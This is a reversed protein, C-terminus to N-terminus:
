APFGRAQSTTSQCQMNHPSTTLLLAQLPVPVVESFILASLSNSLQAKTSGGRENELEVCAPHGVVAELKLISYICCQLKAEKLCRHAITEGSM